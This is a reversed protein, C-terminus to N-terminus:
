KKEKKGAGEKKALESAEWNAVAADIAEGKLPAKLNVGLQNKKAWEAVLEEFSADTMEQFRPGKRARVVPELEKAAIKSLAGTLKTSVGSVGDIPQEERTKVWAKQREKFARVTRDVRKRADLDASYAAFWLGGPFIIKEQAKTGISELNQLRRSRVDDTLEMVTNDLLKVLSNLMMWQQPAKPMIDSVPPMGIPLAIYWNGDEALTLPIGIGGVPQGDLTITAQDDAVSLTSLRGSNQDIWGFPDAFLKAIVQRITDETEASPRGGASPGSFVTISIRPAMNRLRGNEKRANISTRPPDITAAGMRAMWVTPIPEMAAKPTARAASTTKPMQFIAERESRSVIVVLRTIWVRPRSLLDVM